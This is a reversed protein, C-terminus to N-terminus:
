ASTISTLKTQAAPKNFHPAQCPKDNPSTTAASAIEADREALHLAWFAPLVIFMQWMPFTYRFEFHILTSACALFAPYLWLTLPISRGAKIRVFLYAFFVAYMAMACAVNLILFEHAQFPTGLWLVPLRSIKFWLAKLPHKAVAQLLEDFSYLSAHPKDDRFYQNVREAAAPELYQGLGIGCVDYWKYADHPSWLGTLWVAVDRSTSVVPLGVRRMNWRKVPYRVAETTGVLLLGAIIAISFQRWSWPRITLLLCIAIFVAFTNLSDRVLSAIGLWMGAAAFWMLIFVACSNPNNRKLIAVSLAFFMMGLPILAVVESSVLSESYLYIPLPPFCASLAATASLAWTKRTFLAATMVAIAGAILQLLM